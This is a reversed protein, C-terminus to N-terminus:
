NIDQYEFIKKAIKFQEQIPLIMYIKQYTSVVCDLYLFKKFLLKEWKSYHRTSRYCFHVYIFDFSSVLNGFWSTSSFCADSVCHRWLPPCWDAPEGASYIDQGTRRRVFADCNGSISSLLGAISICLEILGPRRYIPLGM